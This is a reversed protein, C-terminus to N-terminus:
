GQLYFGTSDDQWAAHTDPENVYNDPGIKALNLVGISKSKLGQLDGDKAVIIYDWPYGDMAMESPHNPDRNPDIYQTNDKNLRVIEVLYGGQAKIYEAENPFRVDTIVAIEPADKVLHKHLSDIWFNPNEKRVIDTGYWQLIDCYGYIPDKKPPSLKQGPHHTEWQTVLTDHAAKCALKIEDGFAYVRVRNDEEKM